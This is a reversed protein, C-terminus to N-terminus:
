LKILKTRLLRSQMRSTQLEQGNSMHILFTGGPLPAIRDVFNLNALSSRSLRIFVRQDLRAELDKLRYNINFRKNEETHIHLLEGDAVVSVISTVPLLIIEDRVKVPIRDLPESNEYDRVADVIREQESARWDDTSLRSAARELLEALRAREIPKLLYDVANLEFAKVAFEDYATVFAILPMEDKELGKVVEIGTVEPMQIDLIALDPRLSKIADIADQGNEAECVVNVTGIEKLLSKLLERAPREDDAILVKLKEM